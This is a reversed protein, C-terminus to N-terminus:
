AKNLYTRSPSLSPAALPVQADVQKILNELPMPDAKTAVDYPVRIVKPCTLAYCVTSKLSPISTLQPAIAADLADVVVDSVERDPRAVSSRWKLQIVTALASAAAAVAVTTTTLVFSSKCGGESGRGWRWCVSCGRGRGRSWGLRFKSTATRSGLFDVSFGWWFQVGCWGCDAGKHAIRQGLIGGAGPFSKVSKLLRLPLFTIQM